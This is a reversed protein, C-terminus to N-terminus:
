QHHRRGSSWRSGLFDPEKATQFAGSGVPPQSNVDSKDTTDVQIRPFFPLDAGHFVASIGLDIRNEFGSQGFRSAAFGGVEGISRGALAVNAVFVFASFEVIWRSKRNGAASRRHCCRCRCRSGSTRRTTPDAGPCGGVSGPSPHGAPLGHHSGRHRRNGRGRRSGSRHRWGRYRCRGFEVQQVKSRGCCRCRCRCRGCRGATAVQKRRRGGSRGWGRCGSANRWRGFGSRCRRGQSLLEHALWRSRPRRGLWSLGVVVDHRQKPRHGFWLRTISHRGHTTARHVSHHVSHHRLLLWRLLAVQRGKAVHHWLLLLLLLLLGWLSSLFRHCFLRETTSVKWTQRPM